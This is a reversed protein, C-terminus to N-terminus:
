RLEKSHFRIGIEIHNGSIYYPLPPFPGSKKVAKVASDDFYHNGSSKELGMYELTGNRSIKVDIIAEINEKPMLAVPLTWNRKVRSWIVAIYENAANAQATITVGGASPVNSSSKDTLTSTNQSSLDKQKIADIAKEINLSSPEEKKVPMSSTSMMEKKLINSSADERQQLIDKLLSSEISSAIESSGVLQVSYIPGFTLRRSSSPVVIFLATIVVLHIILSLFLMKHINDPNGRSTNHPMRPKM